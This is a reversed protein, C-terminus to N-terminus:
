PCGSLCYIRELTRDKREQITRDGKRDRIGCGRQIRRKKWKAESTVPGRTRARHPPFRRRRCPTPCRPAPHHQDHSGRPNRIALRPRRDWEACIACAIQMTLSTIAESTGCHQHAISPNFRTGLHDFESVDVAGAPMTTTTTSRTDERHHRVAANQRLQKSVGPRRIEFPM